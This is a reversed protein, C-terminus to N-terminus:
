QPLGGAPWDVAGEARAILRGARDILVFTPLAQVDYRLWATGSPDIFLPQASPNAGAVERVTAASTEDICVPLLDLAIGEARLSEVIRAVAPLERVCHACTTGWFLVLVSRDRHDALTATRGALDCITLEPAARPEPEAAFGVTRLRALLQTPVPPALALVHAVLGELERRSLTDGLGPMATGPIGNVIVQRVSQVTPAFRWHDSAFDRPPPQLREADAGDGHGEAGHCRTCHVQYALWGVKPLSAHSDAPSASTVPARRCSFAL